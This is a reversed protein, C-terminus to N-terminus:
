AEALADPTEARDMEATGLLLRHRQEALGIVGAEVMIEAAKAKGLREAQGLIGLFIRRRGRQRLGFPAASSAQRRAHGRTTRSTRRGPIMGRSSSIRSISSKSSCMTGAKRQAPGLRWRAKSADLDFRM